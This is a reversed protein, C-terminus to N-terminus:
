QARPVTVLTSTSRVGRIRGSKNVTERSNEVEVVRAALPISTGDPLVIRDMKIAISAIERYFGLRVSDLDTITGLVKSGIPLLIHDGSLVPAILIAEVPTRKKSKKTSIRRVLRIEIPTNAPITEAHGFAHLCFLCALVM